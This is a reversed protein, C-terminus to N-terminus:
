ADPAVSFSTSQAKEAGCMSLLPWNLFSRESLVAWLARTPAASGHFLGRATVTRYLLVSVPRGTFFAKGGGWGISGIMSGLWFCCLSVSTIDRSPAVCGTGHHSLRARM